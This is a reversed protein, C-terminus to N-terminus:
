ATVVKQHILPIGIFLYCINVGILVYCAGLAGYYHAALLMSPIILILSFLQQYFIGKRWGYAFSLVWPLQIFAELTRAVALLSLIKYTNEAIFTNGTWLLLIEKSYFALAIGVPLILLSVLYWGKRYLSVIKEKNASAFFHSFTPYFAQTIPFILHYILNCVSGALCYYGFVELSLVRTLVVKDIQTLIQGLFSSGGTELIEQKYDKLLKFNYCFKVSLERYVSRRFVFAQLISVAVQWIFFLELTPAVLWLVAVAGFSRIFAFVSNLLNIKVQKHLGMLAADYLWHLWQLAIAIAMLLIPTNSLHASTKWFQMLFSGGSYIGGVMVVSLFLYLIEFTGLLANLDQKKEQPSSYRALEKTIVTTLGLNFMGAISMLMYFFGILGYGEIGLFQLYLPTCILAFIVNTGKGIFNAM